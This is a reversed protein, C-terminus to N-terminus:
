PSTDGQHVRVQTSALPAPIAQVGNVCCLTLSLLWTCYTSPAESESNHMQHRVNSPSKLVAHIRVSHPGSVAADAVSGVQPVLPEQPVQPVLPVRLVLPEQPVRLVLPARLVQLVLPVRLVQLVLPEQPVQLVLPEQPVQPEQPVRLVQPEQPVRLV